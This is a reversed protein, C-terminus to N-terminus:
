LPTSEKAETKSKSWWSTAGTNPTERVTVVVEQLWGFGTSVFEQVFYDAIREASTDSIPLRCIMDNSLSLQQRRGFDLWSVKTTDERIELLFETDDRDFKAPILLRHDLAHVINKIDGYDILYPQHELIGVLKVEVQYTHGHLRGCKPHGPIFHAADITGTWHLESIM